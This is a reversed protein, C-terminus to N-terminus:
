QPDGQCALRGSRGLIEEYRVTCVPLQASQSLYLDRMSCLQVGREIWLQLLCEFARRLRM